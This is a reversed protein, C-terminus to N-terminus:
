DCHTVVTHSIKYHLQKEIEKGWIIHILSQLLFHLRL